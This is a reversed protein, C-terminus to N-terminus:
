IGLGDWCLNFPGMCTHMLTGQLVDKCTLGYRLLTAVDVDDSCGTWFGGFQINPSNQGFVWGGRSLWVHMGLGLFTCPCAFCAIDPASNSYCAVVGRAESRM